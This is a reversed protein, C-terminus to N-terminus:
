IQTGNLFIEVAEVTPYQLATEEIQIQARQSDCKNTLNEMQGSLYVRAIKNEIKVERFKLNPHKKALFNASYFDFDKKFSFLEQYASTLPAPTSAINREIMLVTDCGRKPGEIKLDDSVEVLLPIKTKEFMQFGFNNETSANESSASNVVQAISNVGTIQNVFDEDDGNELANKEEETLNEKGLFGWDSGKEKLADASALITLTIILAAFIIIGITGVANQKVKKTFDTM